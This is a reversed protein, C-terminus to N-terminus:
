SKQPEPNMFQGSATRVENSATELNKGAQEGTRSVWKDVIQLKLYYACINDFSFLKGQELEEIKTWRAEDLIRERELPSVAAYARIVVRDADAEFSGDDRLFTRPDTGFWASRFRVLSNRLASEWHMYKGALSSDPLCVDKQPLLRLSCLTDWDNKFIFASCSSLFYEACIAPNEGMQLMPLSSLLSFYKHAM